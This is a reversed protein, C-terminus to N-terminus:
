KIEEYVTITKEVPAVAFVNSFEKTTGEHSMYYGPIMWLSKDGNETVRIVMHYYEGGGERGGEIDVIDIVINKDPLEIFNDSVRWAANLRKSVTETYTQGKKSSYESYVLEVNENFLEILKEKTM